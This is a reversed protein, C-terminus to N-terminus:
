QQKLVEQKWEGCVNPMSAGFSQCRQSLFKARLAIPGLRDLLTAGKLASFFLSQAEDWNDAAYEARALSLNANPSSPMQESAQRAYALADDIRNNALYAGSLLVNLHRRVDNMKKESGGENRFKTKWGDSNVEKSVVLMKELGELARGRELDIQAMYTLVDLPAAGHVKRLVEHGLLEAQSLDGRRVLAGMLSAQAYGSEPHQAYTRSWLAVEDRWMPLTQNLFFVCTVSYGVFFVCYYKRLIAGLAWVRSGFVGVGMAVFCMPLAMFREHGINGGITLPLIHLVPMLSLVSLAFLIWEVGVRGVLAAKSRYILFFIALLALVAGLYDGGGMKAGDLPHQASLDYFPWVTKLMYFWVARLVYVVRDAFVLNNVLYQDAHVLAPMSSYRIFIYAGGSFILALSGSIFGPGWCWEKVGIRRGSNIWYILRLAFFAVPVVVAMEKSACALFFTLAIVVVRWGGQLYRDSVLTLLGFLTVLLDFRGSVWAVSEINSPHLGYVAVAVVVSVGRADRHVLGATLVGVLIVNVIFIGLNVLHSFAPDTRNGIFEYVFTSLVVPRFYTTEPLIPRSVGAWWSSLDHVSRLAPSNLFLSIDDWVYGFKLVPMYVAFIIVVMLLALLFENGSSQKAGTSHGSLTM